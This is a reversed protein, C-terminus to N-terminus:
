HCVVSCYKMRDSAAMIMSILEQKERGELWRRIRKDESEINNNLEKGRELWALGVAVCHKCCDGQVGMPCNCRYDFSDGWDLRVQYQHQGSVKAQVGHKHVRLAGVFGSQFYGIGRGFAGTGAESQLQKRNIV